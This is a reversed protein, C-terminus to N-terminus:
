YYGGGGYSPAAGYGGYGGQPQSYPDPISSAGAGYGGGYGGSLIAILYDSIHSLTCIYFLLNHTCDNFNM